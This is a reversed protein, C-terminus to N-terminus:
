ERQNVVIETPSSGKQAGTAEAQAQLLACLDFAVSPVTVGVQAMRELNVRAGSGLYCSGPLEFRASRVQTVSRIRMVAM